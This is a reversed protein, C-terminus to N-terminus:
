DPFECERTIRGSPLAPPSLSWELIRFRIIKNGKYELSQFGINGFIAYVQDLTVGDPFVVILDDQIYGIVKTHDHNQLIPAIIM